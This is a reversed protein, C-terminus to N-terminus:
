AHRLNIQLHVGFYEPDEEIHLQHQNPYILDLRQHINTLGIGEQNSSGEQQKRKSNKIRFILQDRVELFLDIRFIRDSGRGGHKFCNELFPLLILPSVLVTDNQVFIQMQIELEDGYRLRELDLYNHILQLEKSLPVKEKNAWYVLYELM